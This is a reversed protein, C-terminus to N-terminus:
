RHRARLRRAPLFEPFPSSAGHYHPLSGHRASHFRVHGGPADLEQENLVLRLTGALVYIAEAEAHQHLLTTSAAPMTQEFLTYSGATHASGALLTWRSGLAAYTPSQAATTHYAPAPSWAPPYTVYDAPQLPGGLGGSVHPADTHGFLRLMIELQDHPPPPTEALTPVRREPALRAMGMLLLEFGPAPYFNLIRAPQEVLFSHQTLRPIHVLTGAGARFAQGGAQFAFEGEIIYFGEDYPHYHAAPGPGAAFEQQLLTLHNNTQMGTALPLWLIGLGWFAPATTRNLVYPQPPRPHSLLSM